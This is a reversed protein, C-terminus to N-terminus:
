FYYRVLAQWAKQQTSAGFESGANGSNFQWQLALDARDWHYRAELWSLRSHDAVNLRLMASLDLHKVIADQWSARVFLAQQSPLEQADQAWYRYAGYALPSGRMLASWNADDPATGNYDYELTLSLKDETTYTAGTALRQRFATDDPRNLARSLQTRSRGGSWEVFAVTADGILTTLNLGLQLPQGQAGFLLAQPNLDQTFQRSAALLWRNQGNTAAWDPNFGNGNAQEALKPSYQATLSAGSWLTQGRLMVSGQRNTKLSNPDASVLSRIAGSRFFDTPNYGMAVGNHVNIRGLDMIRDAQVQWSLYAEKITQIARQDAGQAPWNVDLRDALIVRWDPALSKDFQLDLSLRENTTASGASRPTAQGVAM